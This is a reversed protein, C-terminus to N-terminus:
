SPNSGIHPGGALPPEVGKLSAIGSDGLWSPNGSKTGGDSFLACPEDRRPRAPVTGDLNEGPASVDPVLLGTEKGDLLVLGVGDGLGKLDARRTLSSTEAPKLEEWNGFDVSNDRKLAPDNGCRAFKISFGLGKPEESNVVLQDLPRSLAEVNCLM